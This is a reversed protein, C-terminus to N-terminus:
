PIKVRVRVRERLSLSGGASLSAKRGRGSGPVSGSKGREGPSLAPTLPWAKVRVRVRERISLSGDPCLGAKGGRGPPSPRPLPAKVGAL